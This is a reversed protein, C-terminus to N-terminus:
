IFNNNHWLIVTHAVKVNKYNRCCSFHNWLGPFSKQPFRLWKRNTQKNKLFSFNATKHKAKKGWEPTKQLLMPIVLQQYARGSGELWTQKECSRQAAQANSPVGVQFLFVDSRIWEKKLEEDKLEWWNDSWFTLTELKPPHGLAFEFTCLM